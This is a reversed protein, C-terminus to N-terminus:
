KRLRDFVDRRKESAHLGQVNVCCISIEDMIM